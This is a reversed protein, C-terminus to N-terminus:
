KKEPGPYCPLTKVAAYSYRVNRWDFSGIPGDFDDTLTVAVESDEPNRAIAPAYALYRPKDDNLLFQLSPMFHLRDLANQRRWGEAVSGAEPHVKWALGNEARELRLERSEIGLDPTRRIEEVDPPAKVLQACRMSQEDKAWDPQNEDAERSKDAVGAITVAQGATMMTPIAETAAVGACGAIASAIAILAATKAANGVRTRQLRM